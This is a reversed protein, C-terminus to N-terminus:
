WDVEEIDPQSIIIDYHNFYKNAIRNIDDSTVKKMEDLSKTLYDYGLGVTEYYLAQYVLYEDNLYNQITKYQDMIATDIEDQSIHETKLKEIENKIVEIIEDAKDSSTQTTIRFFGPAVGSYSAHAFYALDKEGRTAFHLRGRAGWLLSQIVSAITFDERDDINPAAMNFDINVQDFDYYNIYTSDSVTMMRPKHTDDVPKNPIKSIIQNALAKAKTENIDGLISVTVKDATIYKKYAKLIDDRTLKQIINNEQEANLKERESDYIKYSRFNDHHTGPQSINRKYSANMREKYITIEKEDFTPNTLADIIRDTLGDLDSLLCSFQLYSGRNGAEAFCRIGRDQLWNTLDLSKYKKSGSFLITLMMELTGKDEHTEFETSAPLYITARVIPKESTYRYLMDLRDNVTIKTLDAKTVSSTEKDFYSKQGKPLAYFAVYSKLFYDRIVRQVDDVTVKRMEKLILDDISPVNYRLMYIGMMLADQMMESSDLYLSSELSKIVDSLMAPTIKKPKAYEEYKQRLITLVQEIDKTENCEFITIIRSNNSIPQWDAAAYIYNVLKTEEEL